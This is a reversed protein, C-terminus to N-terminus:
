NKRFRYVVFINRGYNDAITSVIEQRYGLKEAAEVLKENVGTFVESEKAHGVFVSTPDSLAWQLDSPSKEAGIGNRVPPRNRDLLSITDFIGWDTCFAYAAGSHRLQDALPFVATSWVPVGGNRVIKALYENTVLLCSAAILAAAVALAAPGFRGIRRSVGAFSVAIVAQPWPWLLIIHHASGGTQPNLVMQFWAIPIAILFYVVTRAAGWGALPVLAIAAFFAYLTWGSSPHADVNSLATSVREIPGSPQKPVPTNRDEANFYGLLIGGGATAALIHAKHSLESTDWATNERLTALSTHVNYVILPLAGLALAAVSVAIRRLNAVARVQRPLILLAAVGLGSLMWIALAKDWLALGLLFFGAALPLSSKTQYFRVLLLAGGVVLLHQLAVPGWDFCTTLLYLSDAALLCCGICAARLGAVRRLLLFFLWVSLAGMLLAPERVAYAGTGFVRFIPRYLLSKVTGLYSMLMLSIRFRGITLSYLAALPDFIPVAFLAEDNQIGLRGVFPQGALFFFISSVAGVWNCQKATRIPICPYLKGEL